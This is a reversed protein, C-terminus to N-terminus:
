RPSTPIAAARNGDWVSLLGASEDNNSVLGTASWPPVSLTSPSTSATATWVAESRRQTMPSLLRASRAAASTPRPHAPSRHGARPRWRHSRSTSWNPSSVAATYRHGGVSLLTVLDVFTCGPSPTSHSALLDDYGDGNVDGALAFSTASTSAGEGHQAIWHPAAGPRTALRLVHSGARRTDRRGLLKPGAPCGPRRAMATLDGAIAVSSRPPRLAADSGYSRTRCRECASRQATISMTVM